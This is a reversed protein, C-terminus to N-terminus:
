GCLRLYCIYSRAVLIVQTYLLVHTVINKRKNRPHTSILKVELNLCVIGM